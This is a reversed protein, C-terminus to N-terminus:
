LTPLVAFPRDPTAASALPEAFLQEATLEETSVGSVKASPPGKAAWAMMADIADPDGDIGAEVTGDARNRVWGRLGLGRAKKAFFARYGVGQVRGEIRLRKAM